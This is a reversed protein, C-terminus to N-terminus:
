GLGPRKLWVTVSKVLDVTHKGVGGNKGGGGGVGTV